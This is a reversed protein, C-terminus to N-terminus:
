DKYIPIFMNIEKSFIMIPSSETPSYSHSIFISNKNKIDNELHEFIIKMRKKSVHHSELFENVLTTFSDKLDPKLIDLINVKMDSTMPIQSILTKSYYFRKCSIYDHCKGKGFIEPENFIHDIQTDDSHYTYVTVGNSKIILDWTVPYAMNQTHLNLYINEPIGDGTLDVTKSITENIQKDVINKPKSAYSITPFYLSVILFVIIIPRM